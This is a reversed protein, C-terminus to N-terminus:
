VIINNQHLLSIHFFAGHVSVPLVAVAGIFRAAPFQFAAFAQVVVASVTFHWGAKEGRLNLPGIVTGYPRENLHM